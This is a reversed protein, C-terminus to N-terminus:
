FRWGFTLVVNVLKRDNSIKPSVLTLMNGASDYGEYDYYPSFTTKPFSVVKAAIDMFFSGPSSYGAGFSVSTTVDDYYSASVLSKRHNYYEEFDDFYDDATVTEGFSNVWYKEPCTTLNYGARLSIAPNLRYELGARLSHSVGAFYRNTMNYDIFPDNGALLWSEEDYENFIRMVSYDTLEYDVSFLAKTGFTYAIGLDVVYPSTLSYSYEGVPSSQSDNFFSDTYSTAATYQWKESVNYVTPTQIAAGLRLGKFPLYIVGLKAYLGDLRSIYKYNNSASNFNTYLTQNGGNYEIPFQLPDVATEHFLEAYEYNVIPTGVNAGIYLKDSINFALNLLFDSKRGVKTVQSSQSLPGPVYCYTGDPAIAQTVAAYSGPVMTGDNLVIPSYFGGMYATLVDWSVNSNDYSNYNALINEQVGYAADAFEGLMSSMTNIGHASSSYQYQNTMNSVFGLTFSKLGTRNGTELRLTFGLNPLAFDTSRTIGSQGYAGEGMPSYRSVVSSVSLGPSITVQGYNAVASGAPNIGISGLDGGVAAMANGMGMSRATGYYENQSFNMADYMNQAGALVSMLFAGAILLLRKTAKM